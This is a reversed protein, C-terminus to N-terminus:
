IKKFSFKGDKTWNKASSHAFSDKIKGFFDEGAKLIQFEYMMRLASHNSAASKQNYSSVSQLRFQNLNEEKLSKNMLANGSTLHSHKPKFDLGNLYPNPNAKSVYESDFLKKMEQKNPENSGRTRQDTAEM